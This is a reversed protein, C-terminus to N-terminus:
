PRVEASLRSRLAACAAELAALVADIAPDDRREEVLRCAHAVTTRDRGFGRAVESLKLGFAVHALYMAAQRAFAVAPDRRTPAHLARAPVAFAAGAALATLDCLRQSTRASFPRTDHFWLPEAQVRPGNSPQLM